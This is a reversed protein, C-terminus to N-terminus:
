EIMGRPADEAEPEDNSSSSDDDTAGAARGRLQGALLPLMARPLVIRRSNGSGDRLVVAVVGEDDGDEDSDNDIDMDQPADNPGDINGLTLVELKPVTRIGFPSFRVGGLVIGASMTAAPAAPYAGERGLVNLTSWRLTRLNLKHLETCEGIEQMEGHGGYLLLWEGIKEVTLRIRAPPLASDLRPQPLWQFSRLDLAHGNMPELNDSSRYIRLNEACGGLIVLRESHSAIARHTFGSHLSRWTPALGSTAVREWVRLNVDLIYVFGAPLARNSIGSFEPDQQDFDGGFVVVKRGQAFSGCIHHWISEPAQGSAEVSHWRGSSGREDLIELIHLLKLGGKCPKATKDHCGGLVLVAPRCSTLDPKVECAAHRLRREPKESDPTLQIDRM